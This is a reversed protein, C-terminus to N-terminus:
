NYLYREWQYACIGSHFTKNKLSAGSDQRNNGSTGVLSFSRVDPSRSEIYMCTYTCAHWLLTILAQLIIVHSYEFQSNAPVQLCNNQGLQAETCHLVTYATPGLSFKVSWKRMNRWPCMSGGFAAILSAFELVALLSLMTSFTVLFLSGQASHLVAWVM